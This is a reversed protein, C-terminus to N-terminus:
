EMSGEDGHIHVSQGNITRTVDTYHKWGNPYWFGWDRVKPGTSFLSITYPVHEPLILRHAEEAKRWVVDGPKRHMNHVVVEDTPKGVRHREATWGFDTLEEYGGALLVSQNDWPHDHLPREPDSRVQIHFYVNARMGRVLNWRYLYPEGDPIIVLDPHSLLGGSPALIDLAIERDEPTLRDIEFRSM